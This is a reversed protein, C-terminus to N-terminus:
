SHGPLRRLIEDTLKQPWVEDWYIASAPHQPQDRLGIIGLKETLQHDNLRSGDEDIRSVLLSAFGACCYGLLGEPCQPFVTLDAQRYLGLRAAFSLDPFLEIGDKRSLRSVMPETEASVEGLTILVTHGQQALREATDALLHFSDQSLTFGSGHGGAFLVITGAKGARRRSGHAEVNDFAPVKLDLSKCLLYDRWNRHGTQKAFADKVHPLNQVSAHDKQFRVTVQYPLLKVCDALADLDIEGSRTLTLELPTDSPLDSLIAAFYAYLAIDAFDSFLSADLFLSYSAKGKGSRKPPAQLAGAAVAVSKRLSRDFLAKQSFAKSRQSYYLSRDSVAEGIQELVEDSSRTEVPEQPAQSSRNELDRLLEIAGEPQPRFFLTDKYTELYTGLLDASESHMLISPIGVAAAEVSVTSYDTLVADAVDLVERLPLKTTQQVEINKVGLGRLAREYQESLHRTLPHLRILWQWDPDGAELVQRLKSPMVEDYQLVTLVKFGQDSAHERSTDTLTM